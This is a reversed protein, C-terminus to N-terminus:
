KDNEVKKLEKQARSDKMAEKLLRFGEECLPVDPDNQSCIPCTAMHQEYVEIADAPKDMVEKGKYCSTVIAALLILM